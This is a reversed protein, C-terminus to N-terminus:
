GRGSDGSGLLGGPQTEVDLASRTMEIMSVAVVFLVPGLFVGAAGFLAIGGLVSLFVALSHLETRGGVILARLFNDVTGIVGAGFVILLVGRLVEGQVVLIVAAPLWVIAAGVLPAMSLFAMVVGWFVASPLGLVAFALGGLAGQAAAVGINGYVTAFITDRANSMLSLTRERDLPSLWVLRDVFAPGDRLLFFLSFIIIGLDVLGGGFGSVLRLSEGAIPGAHEQLKASIHGPIEGAELGFLGAGKQVTENAALNGWVEDAFYSAGEHFSTELSSLLAVLLAVSPVFVLLTIGLTMLLSTLSPRNTREVCWRYAPYGLVAIVAAMSLSLLFPWMLLVLSVIAGAGLILWIGSSTQRSHSTSEAM